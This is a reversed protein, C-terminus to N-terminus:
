YLSASSQFKKEFNYFSRSSLNNNKLTFQIQIIGETSPRSLNIFNLDSLILLDNNLIVLSSAGETLQLNQEVLSFITPNKDLEDTSISLSNSFNGPLPYNISEAQRVKRTILEMIQLGQRDIETTLKFRDKMQILSVVFSSLSLFLITSITIYLLLEILTFGQNNKM